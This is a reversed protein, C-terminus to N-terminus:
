TNYPIGQRMMTTTGRTGHWRTCARHFFISEQAYYKMFACDRKILKTKARKIVYIYARQQQEYSDLRYILDTPAMCQDLFNFFLAIHPFYTDTYTDSATRNYWLFIAEGRNRFFFYNCWVYQNKCTPVEDFYNCKKEYKLACHAGYWKSPVPAMFIRLDRETNSLFSVLFFILCLFLTCWTYIYTYDAKKGAYTLLITSRFHTPLNFVRYTPLKHVYYQSFTLAWNM